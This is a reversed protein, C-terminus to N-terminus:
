YCASHCNTSPWLGVVPTEIHIRATIHPTHATTKLLGAGQMGQGIAFALHLQVAVESSSVKLNGKGALPWTRMYRCFIRRLDDVLIGMEYYGADVSLYTYTALRKASNGGHWQRLLRTGIKGRTM